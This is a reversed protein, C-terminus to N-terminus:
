SRLAPFVQGDAVFLLAAGNNCFRKGTPKPGDDFVHGHHGGCRSCHYETREMFLSTDSKIEVSNPLSAFFSPWGTGSEFKTSADFLPLNCAACIFKGARKEHLLSSSGPYETGEEFLIHFQDETLLKRWQDKTKVLKATAQAALSAFPKAFAALGMAALGHRMLERRKM